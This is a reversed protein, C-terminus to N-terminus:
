DVERPGKLRTVKYEKRLPHEGEPWDEPLIFRELNPHGDFVIGFLDHIEREYFMVGPVIDTLTPIKPDTKPVAAKLMVEVGRGFLFTMVDMEKGTDAATITSVHNLGISEVLHKAARKYDEPKVKIHLRRPRPIKVELLEGLLNKMESAISEEAGSSM